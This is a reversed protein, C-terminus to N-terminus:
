TLSILENPMPPEDFTKHKFHEIVTAFDQLEPSQAIMSLLSRLWEQYNSPKSGDPFYTLRVTGDQAKPKFRPKFKKTM